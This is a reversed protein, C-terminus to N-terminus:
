GVVAQERLEAIRADDYGAARLIEDAHESLLPARVFASAPTGTMKIPSGAIGLKRGTGPHDVEVIMERAKVHPDAAIDAANQVLGFAVNGGLEERIAVKTRSAMWTSLIERCEGAHAVRADNTAFREDLGLEPRGIAKCLVQWQQDTSAAISVHGDACPFVDFPCLLPHSNGQPQSAVGTYSHVYVIRECLSLVSDYMAVDVFQGEGTQRAHLVAALLGITLHAAPFLDGVGAGVKTPADPAPGTIGMIGGMAQAVVDYAPMDGYPSEGTRPDGFGRVAAYVLRPNEQRLSEYGLGLRGMVGVRFNEVLVDAQRVLARLVEAGDPAKLDLAISRKNRNVSAFYGGYAHLEDGPAEPPLGRTMDGTPPEVKVVDAGLDALMMTAYPGSLMQTLDVVRLGALPGSV